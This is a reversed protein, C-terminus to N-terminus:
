NQHGETVKDFMIKQVCSTKVSVADCLCYSLKRNICLAQQWNGHVALL